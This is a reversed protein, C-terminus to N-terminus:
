FIEITIMKNGNNECFYNENKYENTIKSYNELCSFSCYTKAFNYIKNLKMGIIKIRKNNGSTIKVIIKEKEIM